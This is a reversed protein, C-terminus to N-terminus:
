VKVNERELRPEGTFFPRWAFADYFVFRREYLHSFAGIVPGNVLACIITGWKVGVFNGFGFILFSLVVGVLCSAIDYGTKFRHIEVGFRASLEKVALEYVEPSLYTHFMLSVGASCIVVGIVFWLGRLLFTDAPLFAGLLMCGDVMLGYIVATVFSLLYSMRFRRLVLAMGALLLAQFCYEAMGFSFFSWIPNLWRYLIYAPAVVMSLGLDAKETFMVGLAIFLLGVAYALEASLAQKRM